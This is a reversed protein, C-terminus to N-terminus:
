PLSIEGGCIPLERKIKILSIASLLSSVLLSLVTYFLYLLSQISICYHLLIFLSWRDVDGEM